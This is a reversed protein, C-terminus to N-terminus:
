EKVFSFIRIYIVFTGRWIFEEFFIYISNISINISRIIEGFKEIKRKYYIVDLLSIKIVNLSLFMMIM